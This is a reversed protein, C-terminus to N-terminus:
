HLVSKVETHSCMAKTSATAPLLTHGCLMNLWWGKSREHIQLPGVGSASCCIHFTSLDDGVYNHSSCVVLVKSRKLSYLQFLLINSYSDVQFSWLNLLTIRM